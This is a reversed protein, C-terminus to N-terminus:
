CDDALITKIAGVVTLPSENANVLPPSTTRELEFKISLITLYGFRTSPRRSPLQPLVLSSSSSCLLQSYGRLKSILFYRNMGCLVSTFSEERTTIIVSTRYRTEVNKKSSKKKSSIVRISEHRTTAPLRLFNRAGGASLRLLSPLSGISSSFSILRRGRSIYARRM